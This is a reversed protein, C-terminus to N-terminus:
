NRYIRRKIEEMVNNYYEPNVIQVDLPSEYVDIWIQKNELILDIGEKEARINSYPAMAILRRFANLKDIISQKPNNTLLMNELTGKSTKMLKNNIAQMTDSMTNFREIVTNNFADMKKELDTLTTEINELRRVFAENEAMLFGEKTMLHNVEERTITEVTDKTEKKILKPMTRLRLIIFGAIIIIIVVALPWGDLGTSKAADIAIGIEAQLLYM